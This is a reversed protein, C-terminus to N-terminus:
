IRIADLLEGDLPRTGMVTKRYWGDRVADFFVAQGMLRYAKCNSISEGNLRASSINGTKYRGISLGFVAEFADDNMYYRKMDGREWASIGLDELKEATTKEAPKASYLECLAASFAACYSNFHARIERAIKHAETFLASRNMM